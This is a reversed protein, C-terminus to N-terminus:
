NKNSLQKDIEGERATIVITTVAPTGLQTGLTVEPRVTVAGAPAPVLVVHTVGGQATDTLGGQMTWVAGSGDPM